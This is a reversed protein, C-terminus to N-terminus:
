ANPTAPRLWVSAAFLLWGVTTRTLILRRSDIMKSRSAILLLIVTAFPLRLTSALVADVELLAPKVLVTSASWGVAAVLALGVGLAMGSAVVTRSPSSPAQDTTILWVGAGIVVVGIVLVLTVPEGLFAVALLATVLPHCGAIPAARAVLASSFARPAWSITAM